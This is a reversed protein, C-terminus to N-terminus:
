VATWGGDVMLTHGTIYDAAPSCLFVVPWAVDGPEGFRGLPTRRLAFDVYPTGPELIPATMETRIVAPGVANVNIGQPALEAALQRTLQVVAGKSAAYAARNPHGVIGFTSAVNVIKGQGRTIMQPAFAKVCRYIGKVNVEIVRDWDAEELETIPSRNAVGANNILIDVRGLGALAEAAGRRVSASDAVDVALALARQGLTMIEDRVAEVEAATRAMLAVAAGAEALALAIARGIGRGAGTVVATRGDLSFPASGSM